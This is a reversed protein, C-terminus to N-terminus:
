NFWLKSTPKNGKPKVGKKRNDSSPQDRPDRTDSSMPTDDGDPLQSKLSTKLM